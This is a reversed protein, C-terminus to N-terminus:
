SLWQRPPIAKGRRRIEFYLGNERLGGTHGVTAIQEGKKVSQGKHKFLSENHAYLTMTNNGHDIIILLGYGRLWDSFVIKGPLVANVSLGEKAYFFLGQNLREARSSKEQLPNALHPTLQIEAINAVVRKPIPQSVAKLLAQLREQDERCNKLTDKKTKISQAIAEVLKQHQIKILSLEKQQQIVNDQLQRLADVETSLTAENKILNQTTQQVTLILTKDSELIYQYLTLQRNLHSPNKQSLLWQMPRDKGMAYRAQLHNALSTQQASLKIKLQSIELATEHISNQKNLINKQINHLSLVQEGLKIETTALAQTEAKQTSIAHQINQEIINIKNSLAHLENKTTSTRTPNALTPISFLCLSVALICLRHMM